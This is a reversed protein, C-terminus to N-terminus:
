SRYSSSRPKQTLFASLVEKANSFSEVKYKRGLINEYLERIMEEDEAVYIIKMNMETM